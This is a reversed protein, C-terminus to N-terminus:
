EVPIRDFLAKEAPTAGSTHAVGGRGAQMRLQLAYAGQTGQDSPQHAINGSGVSPDFSQAFAPSAIITALAVAAFFKNMDTGRLNRQMSRRSQLCGGERVHRGRVPTFHSVHLFIITRRQHVAAITRPTAVAPLERSARTRHPHGLEETTPHAFARLM